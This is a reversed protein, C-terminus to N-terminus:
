IKSTWPKEDKTNLLLFEGWLVLNRGAHLRLEGSRSRLDQQSAEIEMKGGAEMRADQSVKLEYHSGEMRIAEGARVEFNGDCELVADRTPCRLHTRGDVVRIELELRGAPNFLALHDEGAVVEGELRFGSAPLVAPIMAGTEHECGLTGIVVWEPEAGVPALL